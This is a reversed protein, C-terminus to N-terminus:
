SPLQPPASRLVTGDDLTVDYTLIPRPDGQGPGFATGPWWAVYRGDRVTAEVTVAGAHVTLARVGAGVAGDTVSAGGFDSIAGQSFRRPAPRWSPGSSGGIATGLDEIERSGPRNRYLCTGSVDPDDTRYLLAVFLGRREGLALRARGVDLSGGALHSRCTPGVLELEAATLPSASPTWSAFEMRDVGRPQLLTGGAVALAAAPLVLLPLLRPRRRRAAPTLDTAVIRELVADAHRRQAPTITDPAPDLSRLLMDVDQDHPTTM